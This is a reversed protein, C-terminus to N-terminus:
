LCMVSGGVEAPAGDVPLLALVHSHLCDLLLLLVLAAASDAGDGLLHGTIGEKVEETGQFTLM